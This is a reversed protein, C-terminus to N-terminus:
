PATRSPAAGNCVVYRRYETQDAIGRWKRGTPFGGGGRGRLGSAALVEITAQPGLEQAREVGKGGVETALYEELSTVPSTPLLFM